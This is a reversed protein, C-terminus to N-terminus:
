VRGGILPALPRSWGLPTRPAPDRGWLVNRTTREYHPLILQEVYYDGAAASALHPVGTYGPFPKLAMWALTKTAHDLEDAQKWLPRLGKSLRQLLPRAQFDPCPPLAGYDSAVTEPALYLAISTEFFGAHYDDPLKSMVLEFEADSALFRRLPAYREPQFDLIMAVALDFVNLAKVGRTQLYDIGAHIAHNHFPSGHFTHYIVRQVGLQALGEAQTLILHKLQGYSLNTSGLGPCPDCGFDIHGGVVFAMDGQSVCLRDHLRRALRESLIRDNGLSLHPGHYEVPNVFVHVPWGSEAIVKLASHPKFLLQDDLLLSM